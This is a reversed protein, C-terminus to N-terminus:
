RKAAYVSFPSDPPVIALMQTVESGFLSCFKLEYDGPERPTFDFDYTEGVSINKVADQVTAQEIPLDAGDKAIARWKAPHSELTLSTHM